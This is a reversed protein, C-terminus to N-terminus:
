GTKSTARAYVAALRQNHINNVAAAVAENRCKIIRDNIIRTNTPQAPCVREAAETLRRYLARAGSDTALMDPNFRVTLAPVDSPAPSAGAVGAAALAAFGGLLLIKAALRTM